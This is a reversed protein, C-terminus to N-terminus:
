CNQDNKIVGHWICVRCQIVETPPEVLHQNSGKEERCELCCSFYVCSIPSIMSRLFILNKIRFITLISKEIRYWRIHVLKDMQKCPSISYFQPSARIQKCKLKSLKYFQYYLRSVRNYFKFSMDYVFYNRLHPPSDREVYLNWMRKFLYSEILFFFTPYTSVIVMLTFLSALKLALLLLICSLPPKVLLNISKECNYVYQITTVVRAESCRETLM